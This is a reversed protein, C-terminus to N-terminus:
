KWRYEMYRATERAVEEGLLRSVVHFSMDIGASIGGCTIVKGTDVIRLDERMVSKPAARRFEDFAGYHTTAELGDLLGATGLVLSGTCVSLVLEAEAARERVWQLVTGNKLLARTGMGGPVILIDAPPADVLSHAANVSLGNRALIPNREACTLVRFPKEPRGAVSFVEFPGAFDLVEVEDFLLMLVTRTKM